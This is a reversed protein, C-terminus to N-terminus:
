QLNVPITVPQDLKIELSDGSSIVVENGKMLAAGAAGVGAGVATGYVAGKGAKGGSMPGLATGLAAGLGAGVATTGLAKLIRGKTTGGHLRGDETAISGQITYRQNDPTIIENFKIDLVANKGTRGAAEVATIRGVIKSGAPIVVRNDTSVLAQDVNLVVEDGVKNLESSIATGSLTGTFRTNAPVTAIRAQLMNPDPTALNSRQRLNQVLAAVYGRTAPQLPNLANGEAPDNTYLGAQILAAIGTRAWNPVSSADRYNSLIQEVTADNPMPIRAANALVVLAETRNLGKSPMFLGNPYGSVLGTSRVTEIAPYAWHTTPVDQFNQSGNANLSLGLAKVMVVSLEARTIPGEPRFTGDPYGTIINQDSLAQIAGQAWHSQTDSFYAANAALSTFALQGLLALAVVKSRKLKM